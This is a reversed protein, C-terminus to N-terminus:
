PRFPPIVLLVEIATPTGDRMAPRFVWRRLADLLSDASGGGTQIARLQELRGTANLIAHIAQHVPKQWLSAAPLHAQVVYPAKLPRPAGLTVVSHSRRAATEGGAVCYHLIWEVPLGVNLYATYVPTGSLVSSNAAVPEPLAADVVVLDFSGGEPYRLVVSGDPHISARVDGMSTHIVRTEAGAAEGPSAGAPEPSGAAGSRADRTGAEAAGPLNRAAAGQARSAEPRGFPAPKSSARERDLLSDREGPVPPKSPDPSGKSPATARGSGSGLVVLNAPPIAVIEGPAPRDPALVIFAAPAGPTAASAPLEPEELWQRPAALPSAGSQPIYVAGRAPGAASRSPVPLRPPAPIPAELNSRLSAALVPDLGPEPAGAIIPEELRVPNPGSWVAMRKLTPLERLPRANREPQLVLASATVPPAPVATGAAPASALAPRPVSRQKRGAMRAAKKGQRDARPPIRIWLPSTRGARAIAEELPQPRFDWRLARELVPVGAGLFILHLFFSAALPALFSPDRRPLLQFM